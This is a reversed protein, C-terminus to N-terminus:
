PLEREPGGGRKGLHLYCQEPQVERKQHRKATKKPLGESILNKKGRERERAVTTQLDFSQGFDM